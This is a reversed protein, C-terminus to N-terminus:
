AFFAMPCWQATDLPGNLDDFIDFLQEESGPIYYEQYGTPIAAQTVSLSILLASLVALLTALVALPKSSNKIYKM